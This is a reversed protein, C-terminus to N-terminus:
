RTKKYSIRETKQSKPRHFFENLVLDFLSIKVATAALLALDHFGRLCAKEIQLFRSATKKVAAFGERLAPVM